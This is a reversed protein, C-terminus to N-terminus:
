RWLNNTYVGSETVQCGPECKIEQRTIKVKINRIDARGYNLRICDGVKPLTFGHSYDITCEISSKERLLRKAYEDIDEENPIGLISPKTDRFM